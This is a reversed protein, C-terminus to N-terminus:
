RAGQRARERDAQTDEEASVELWRCRAKQAAASEARHTVMLGNGATRLAENEARLRDDEAIFDRGRSAALRIEMEREPTLM